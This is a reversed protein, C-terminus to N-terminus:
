FGFLHGIVNLFSDSSVMKQGFTKEAAGNKILVVGDGSVSIDFLESNQLMFNYCIDTRIAKTDVSLDAFIINNKEGIRYNENNTKDIIGGNASLLLTGSGSVYYYRLRGLFIAKKLCWKARVNLTPSIGVISKPAVLAGGCNDLKLETFYEYPTSPQIDLFVTDDSKNEYKDMETLGSFFSVIPNRLNFLVSKSKRLKSNELYGHVRDSKVVISEGKLLPVSITKQANKVINIRNPTKRESVQFVNDGSKSLYPACIFIFFKLVSPFVVIVFVITLSNLVCIPNVFMSIYTEAYGKPSLMKTKDELTTELKKIKGEQKKVTKFANKIEDISYGLIKKCGSDIMNYYFPKEEEVINKEEATQEDSPPCDTTTLETNTNRLEANISCVTEYACLLVHTIIFFMLFTKIKKM